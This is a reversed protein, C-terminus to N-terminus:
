SAACRCTATTSRWGAAGSSKARTDLIWQCMPADTTMPKETIVDCGLAMARCIYDAHTSDVTTVIVTDPKTEAIMKDFDAAPYARPEARGADAAHARALELRGANIDCVGVLESSGAYTTQIADLYLYARSGVGVVAYRKKAATKDAAAAADQPKVAAAALLAGASMRAFDRRSLEDMKKAGM